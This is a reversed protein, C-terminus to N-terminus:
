FLDKIFKFLVLLMGLTIILPLFEFPLDRARELASPLLMSVTPDGPIIQLLVRGNNWQWNTLLTGPQEQGPTLKWLEKPKAPLGMDLIIPDTTNISVGYFQTLTPVRDFYPCNLSHYIDTWNFKAMAINEAYVEIIPYSTIYHVTLTLTAKTGSIPTVEVMDNWTRYVTSSANLVTFRYTFTKSMLLPPHPVGGPPPPGGSFAKRTLYVTYEPIVIVQVAHYVTVEFKPLVVTESYYGEKEVEITYNIPRGRVTLESSSPFFGWRHGTRVFCVCDPTVPNGTAADKFIIKMSPEVFVAKFLCDGSIEFYHPGLNAAQIYGEWGKFDYGENVIAYVGIKTNNPYTWTGTGNIWDHIGEAYHQVVGPVGPDEIWNNRFYWGRSLQMTITSPGPVSFYATVNYDMDMCLTLPNSTYNVDVGHMTNQVRWYSFFQGSAPTATLAAYSMASYETTGSPTVTGYNPNNVNVTLTYNIPEEVQYTLGVDMFGRLFIDTYWAEVHPTLFLMYTASSQPKEFTLTVNYFTLNSYTDHYEPYDFLIIEGEEIVDKSTGWWYDLYFGANSYWAGKGGSYQVGFIINLTVTADQSPLPLSGDRENYPYEVGARAWSEGVATLNFAYGSWEANAYFGDEVAASCGTKLEIGKVSHRYQLTEEPLVANEWHEQFPDNLNKSEMWLWMDICDQFLPDEVVEGRYDYIQFWSFHATMRANVVEMTPAVGILTFGVIDYLQQTLTGMAANPMLEGQTARFFAFQLPLRLSSWNGDPLGFQNIYPRQNFVSLFEKVAKGLDYTFTTPTNLPTANLAFNSHWDWDQTCGLFGDWWWGDPMEMADTDNGFQRAYVNFGDVIAPDDGTWPLFPDLRWDCFLEQVFMNPAGWFEPSMWGLYTEKGRLHAPVRPDDWFKVRVAYWFGVGIHTTTGPSGFPNYSPEFQYMYEPDQMRTVTFNVIITNDSINAPIYIHHKLSWAKTHNGEGNEGNEGDHSGGNHFPLGQYSHAMGFPQAWRDIVEAPTGFSSKAVHFYTGSSNVVAYSEPLPNQETSPAWYDPDDLTPNNIITIPTGQAKVKPIKFPSIKFPLISCVLFAIAFITLIKRIKM